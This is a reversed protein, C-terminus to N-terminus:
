FLDGVRVMAGPAALTSVSEDELYGVVDLYRGSEPRRHVILRRENLDLVWYEPIGARAYLGAKVTMDFSLTTDSVEAVFLVHEPRPRGSITRISRDLVVVDPQPENTANEDPHLDITPHQLAILTGFLGHLWGYLLAQVVMHPQYKGIRLVLEGGILEYRDPDLVGARELAACEARTWLKHPPASATGPIEVAVPMGM